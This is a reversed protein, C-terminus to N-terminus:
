WISDFFLMLILDLMPTSSYVCVCMVQWQGVWVKGSLFLLVRIVFVHFTYRNIHYIMELMSIMFKSMYFWGSHRVFQPWRYHLSCPSHWHLHTFSWWNGSKWITFWILERILCSVQVYNWYSGSLNWGRASSSTPSVVCHWIASWCEIAGFNGCNSLSMEIRKNEDMKSRGFWCVSLYNSHPRDVVVVVFYFFIM